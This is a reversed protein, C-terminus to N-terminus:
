IKKREGEKIVDDKKFFLNKMELAAVGFLGATAIYSGVSFVFFLKHLNSAIPKSM